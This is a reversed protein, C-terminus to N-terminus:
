NMYTMKRWVLEMPGYAFRQLWWRSYFVQIVFIALTILISQWIHVKGYLGLGWNMYLFASIISHMLYNTLAMRGVPSLWGAIKDIRQNHYLLILASVYAFTLAPATFGVCLTAIFTYLSPQGMPVFAYLLAYLLNGPIGIILGWRLFKRFMPIHMQYDSLYKRRAAYMGILFFAMVNPYFFLVGPLLMSYETMRMRVAEAFTGTPYVLLTQSIIEQITNNQEAMGAEMATKSEPHFGAAYTILVILGNLVVPVLIFGLAWRLLKRDPSKRFLILVFGFLAYFILIDGPWLLIVHAIGFLLLILVRRRYVPTVPAGNVTKNMFLWFGYGFLLSFLVYFKSEFFAKIFSGAILDPLGPWLKVDALIAVLPGNMLPMNVMLIGLLAFGRLFDLTQLRQGSLTPTFQSHM